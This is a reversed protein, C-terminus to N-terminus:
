KTQIALLQDEIIHGYVCLHLLVFTVACRREFVARHPLEFDGAAVMMVMRAAAATAYLALLLGGRERAQLQRQAQAIDARM